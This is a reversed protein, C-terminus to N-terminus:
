EAIFPTACSSRIKEDRSATSSTTATSTATAACSSRIQEDRSATSSTTATSTATAACSSRIQEDRSATSSTTATSTATAACSSRIQEDRSATSSTTATSTATAACSSRIQEDRSATSSATPVTVTDPHNSLSGPQGSNDNQSSSPNQLANPPNQSWDSPSLNLMTQHLHSNYGELYQLPLHHPNSQDPPWYPEPQPPYYVRQLNHDNQSSPHPVLHDFRGMMSLPQHDPPPLPPPPHTQTIPSSLPQPTHIATHVISPRHTFAINRVQTELTRGDTTDQLSEPLTQTQSVHLQLAHLAERGGTKLFLFDMWALECNSESLGEFWPHALLRGDIASIRQTQDVSLTQNLFDLFAPSVQKTTIPPRPERVKRRLAIIEETRFPHRGELLEYAVCGLAWIDTSQTYSEEDLAEPSMYLPTGCITKQQATGISTLDEMKQLLGYDSILIRVTQKEPDFALLLNDPKIDRHIFHHQHLQTIGHSGMFIIRRVHEEPIGSEQNKKILKGLDGQDAYDMFFAMQKTLPNQMASHTSTLFRRNQCLKRINDAMGYERRSLRPDDVLKAARIMGDLFAYHPCGCAKLLDVDPVATEAM